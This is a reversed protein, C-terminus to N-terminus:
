YCFRWCTGQTCALYSGFGCFGKDLKIVGGHGRCLRHHDVIRSRHWVSLRKSKRSFRRHDFRRIPTSDKLLRKHVSTSHQTDDTLPQSTSASSSAGKDHGTMEPSESKSRSKKDETLPPNSSASSSADNSEASGESSESSSLPKRNEAPPFSSVTSSSTDKGGVTARQRESIATSKTADTLPANSPRAPSAGKSEATGNPKKSNSLPRRDEAPPPSSPASSLGDKSEVTAHHNEGSLRSIGDDAIQANSHNSSAISQNAQPGQVQPLVPKRVHASGGERPSSTPSTVPKAEPKTNANDPKKAKESKFPMQDSSPASHPNPEGRAMRGEHLSLTPVLTFAAWIIPAMVGITMGVVFMLRPLM